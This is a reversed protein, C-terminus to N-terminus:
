FFLHFDDYFESRNIRPKLNQVHNTKQEKINVTIRIFQYSQSKSKYNTINLYKRKEM